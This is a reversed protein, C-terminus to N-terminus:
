EKKQGVRKQAQDILELLSEVKSKPPGQFIQEFEAPTLEARLYKEVDFYRFWCNMIKVCPQGM